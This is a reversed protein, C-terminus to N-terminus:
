TELSKFILTVIQKIVTSLSILVEDSSLSMGVTISSILSFRNNPIIKILVEDCVSYITQFAM